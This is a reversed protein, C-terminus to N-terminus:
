ELIPFSSGSKAPFGDKESAILDVGNCYLLEDRDINTVNTETPYLMMNM